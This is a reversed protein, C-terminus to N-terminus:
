LFYKLYLYISSIVLSLLMMPFSLKMFHVFDIKYGQKESVGAVIVGASSGIITGNGGFCAGLALAWWLPEVDMGSNGIALILPIMTAVFPINNLFASALGAGWLIVFTTILLDGGTLNLMGNALMDIAGVEVLGGVLVFLGIFFALTTWEVNHFVEEVDVGTIAIILGAFFLALVSLEIHFSEALWFSAITLVLIVLSKKLLTKSTISQNEDLKMLLEVDKDEVQLGKKYVFRYVVLFAVLTALVVPGLHVLFDNFSLTTSGGIMVNPPDGILTGTGGVNSLVIQSILFPRPDLRLTETIVLTVPVILLVVTVNDLFASAFATFIGLIVLIRWPDGKVKKAIKIAMYEFVGTHSLVGVIIMMGVLLGITNFEIHDVARDFSLIGIIVILSAGIMSIAVKNIKESIILGYAVIFISVALTVETM